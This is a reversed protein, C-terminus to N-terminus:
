PSLRPYRAHERSPADTWPVRVAVVGAPLGDYRLVGELSLMGDAALFGELDNAWYLLDEPRYSGSGLSGVVRGRYEPLTPQASLDVLRRLPVGNFLRPLSLAGAIGITPDLLVNDIWLQAHNGVAGGEWGVIQVPTDGGAQRYLHFALSNYNDCDLFPERVLDDLEVAVSPGYPAFRHALAMAFVGRLADETPKIGSPRIDFAVANRCAEFVRVV